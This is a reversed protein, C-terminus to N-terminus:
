QGSIYINMHSEDLTTQYGARKIEAMSLKLWQGFSRPETNEPDIHSLNSYGKKQAVQMLINKAAWYDLAVPDTGAVILNTREAADYPTRPGGQPKANVWIADIINLTPFRTEVMETGLAGTAITNHARAGLQATLKDSVVGQYHKVCATVGYIFHAKLVPVNIVKLRDSDYTRRNPNWIGLKFSIHTDFRTKFKPYSVM